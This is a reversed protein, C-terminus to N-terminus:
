GDDRTAQWTSQGLEEMDVAGRMMDGSVTGTYRAEVTQGDHTARSYEFGLSGGDLFGRCVTEEDGTLFTAVLDPGDQSFYLKTLNAYDRPLGKQFFTWTGSLDFVGDGERIAQWASKGRKGMDVEGGMLDGSVRGTFVAVAAKKAPTEHEFRLTDGDIEVPETLEGAKGSLVVVTDEGEGEFALSAFGKGPPAKGQITMTWTGSLDPGDSAQASAAAPVALLALLALLASYSLRRPLRM